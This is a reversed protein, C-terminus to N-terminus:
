VYRYYDHMSRFVLNNFFYGILLGFLISGLLFLILDIPNMTQYYKKYLTYSILLIFFIYHIKKIRTKINFYFFGLLISIFLLLFDNNM